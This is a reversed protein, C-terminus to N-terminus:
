IGFMLWFIIWLKLFIEIVLLIYYIWRWKNMVVIEDWISESLDMKRSNYMNKTDEESSLLFRTQEKNDDNWSDPNYLDVEWQSDKMLLKQIFSNNWDKSKKMFERWYFDILIITSKRWSMIIIFLILIIWWTLKLTFIFKDWLWINVWNINTKELIQFYLVNRDIGPQLKTKEYYDM